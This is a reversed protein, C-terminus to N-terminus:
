AEGKGSDGSEPARATQGPELNIDAPQAAAAVVAAAGAAAGAAAIHQVQQDSIEFSSGLVSGKITRKILLGAFGTLVIAILILAGIGLRFAYDPRERVLWLAYGAYGTMSLGGGALFLLAAGRRGEPDRLAAVARWAWSM